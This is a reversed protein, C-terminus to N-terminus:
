VLVPESPEGPERPTETAAPPPETPVLRWQKAGKNEGALQVLHGGIIHDRRSNLQMAFSTQQGRPTTAKGFNMGDTDQAIPFLERVGVATYGFTKWWASVFACWAAGEVDARDYFESANDLLGSIGAHQLIGGIVATWSEFSGLPTGTFAPR